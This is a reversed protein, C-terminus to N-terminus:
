KQKRSTIYNRESRKDSNTIECPTQSFLVFFYSVCNMVTNDQIKDGVIGVGSKDKSTEQLSKRLFVRCLKM